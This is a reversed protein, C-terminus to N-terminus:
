QVGSLVISSCMTRSPKTREVSRSVRMVAVSGLSVNARSLAHVGGAGFHRYDRPISVRRRWSRVKRGPVDGKARKIGGIGWGRVGGRWSRVIVAWSWLAAGVACLAVNAAWEWM